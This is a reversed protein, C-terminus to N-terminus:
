TDWLLQLGRLIPIQHTPIDINVSWVYNQKSRVNKGFPHWPPRQYLEGEKPRCIHDDYHPILCKVPTIMKLIRLVVIRRGNHDPLTSREFQALASGIFEHFYDIYSYRSLTIQTLV